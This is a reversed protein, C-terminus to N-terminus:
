ALSRRMGGPAPRPLSTERFGSSARRPPCVEIFYSLPAELIRIIRIVNVAIVKQTVPAEAASALAPCSAKALDQLDQWPASPVGLGARAFIIFTSIFFRPDASTCARLSASRAFIM